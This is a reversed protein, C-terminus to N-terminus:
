IEDIGQFSESALITKTSVYSKWDSSLTKLM